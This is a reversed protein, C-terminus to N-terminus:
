SSKALLLVPRYEDSKKIVLSPYIDLTGVDNTRDTWQFSGADKVTPTNVSVLVHLTILPRRLM